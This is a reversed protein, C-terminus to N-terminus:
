GGPIAKEIETILLTNLFIACTGASHLHGLGVSAVWAVKKLQAFLSVTM